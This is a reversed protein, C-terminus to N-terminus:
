IAQLGFQTFVDQIKDIHYNITARSKLGLKRAIDVPREGAYLMMCIQRSKEPLSAIANQLLENQDGSIRVDEPNDGESRVMELLDIEEMDELVVESSQIYMSYRRQKRIMMLGENWATKLLYGDGMDLFGDMMRSQMFIKTCMAQFFDGDEFFSGTDRLALARAYQRLKPENAVLWTEINVQEPSPSLRDFRFTNKASM